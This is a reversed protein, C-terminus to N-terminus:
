IKGSDKASGFSRSLGDIVLLFLLPSLPCGQRLGWSCRFFPTPSSNVLVSFHVSTVCAMIWSVIEFDLGIHLLLHLYGWDVRDYAKILDIKLLCAPLNKIKISHIGEQTAGVVDFIM